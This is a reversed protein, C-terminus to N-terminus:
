LNDQDDWLLHSSFAATSENDAKKLDPYITYLLNRTCYMCLLSFNNSFWVVTRSRGHIRLISSLADMEKSKTQSCLVEVRFAQGALSWFTSWMFFWMKTDIIWFMFSRITCLIEDEYILVCTGRRRQPITVGTHFNNRLECYSVRKPYSCNEKKVCTANLM